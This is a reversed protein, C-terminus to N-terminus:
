FLSQKQDRSAMPFIQDVARQQMGLCRAIQANSANYDYKLERVLAIRDEPALDGPSSVKYTNRCRRFVLNRMDYDDLVLSDGIRKAIEIYSEVNKLLLHQYERANEFFSEASKYDVFCTACAIGDQVMMRDDAEGSRSHTIARRKTLSMDAVPVGSPMTSLFDNFYLYGSCWKYAFMNVKPNASFPNRVVYAIENKLQRLTDIRIYQPICEKVLNTRGESKLKVRLHRVLEKFFAECKEQSGELVFHFHNSMIAFALLCCGSFFVAFAIMNLAEDMEEKSRFYLDVELPSTCVHYFPGGSVFRKECQSFQYGRM